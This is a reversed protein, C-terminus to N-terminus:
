ESPSLRTKLTESAACTKILIHAHTVSKEASVPSIQRASNLLEAFTSIKEKRSTVTPQTFAAFDPIGRKRLENIRPNPPSEVMHWTQVAALCILGDKEFINIPRMIWPTVADSILKAKNLINGM